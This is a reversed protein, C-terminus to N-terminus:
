LKRDIKTGIYNTYDMVRKRIDSYDKLQAGYPVDGVVFVFIKMLHHWMHDCPIGDKMSREPHLTRASQIHSALIADCAKRKVIYFSTMSSQSVRCFNTKPLHSGKINCYCGLFVDYIDNSLFEDVIKNTKEYSQNFYHDDELICWVEDGSDRFQEMAMIHSKACGYAGKPHELASIRIIKENPVNFRSLEKLIHENRDKRKDLNIYVFKDIRNM